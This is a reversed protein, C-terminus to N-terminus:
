VLAPKTNRGEADTLMFALAQKRRMVDGGKMVKDPM